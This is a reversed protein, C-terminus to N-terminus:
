VRGGRKGTDCGGEGRGQIVGERGGRKGTDCGGEGRGQIM